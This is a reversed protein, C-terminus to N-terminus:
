LRLLPDIEEASLLTLSSSSSSCRLWPFDLWATIKDLYYYFFNSIPM